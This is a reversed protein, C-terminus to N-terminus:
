DIQVEFSELLNQIQLMPSHSSGEALALKHNISHGLLVMLVDELEKIFGDSASSGQSLYHQLYDNHLKSVNDTIVKFKISFRALKCSGNRELDNKASDLLSLIQNVSNHLNNVLEHESQTDADNDVQRLPEVIEIIRHYQVRIQQIQEVLKRFEISEAYKQADITQKLKIEERRNTEIYPKRSTPLFKPLQPGQNM